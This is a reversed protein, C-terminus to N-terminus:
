KANNYVKIKVKYFQDATVAPSNEDLWMRLRYSDTSNKGCKVKSLVMSGEPSGLKSKTKLGKYNKSEFVKSFTGNNQKELYFHVVKDSINSNEDKIIAIEYDIEKSVECKVSFDFYNGVEDNRKADSELLPIANKLVYSSDDGVYQLYITGVDVVDKDVRENGEFLLFAGGVVFLILITCIILYILITRTSYKGVDKM